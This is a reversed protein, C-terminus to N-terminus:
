IVVSVLSFSLQYESTQLGCLLPNGKNSACSLWKVWLVSDECHPICIIPSAYLYQFIKFVGNM